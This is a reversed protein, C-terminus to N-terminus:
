AMASTHNLIYAICKTCLGTKESIRKYIYERRVEYILGGLEAKVENYIKHVENDRIITSVRQNIKNRGM